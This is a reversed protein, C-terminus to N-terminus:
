VELRKFVVASAAVGAVAALAMCLFVAPMTEYSTSVLFLMIGLLYAPTAVITAWFATYGRRILLASLPGFALAGLASCVAVCLLALSGGVIQYEPRGTTVPDPGPRFFEAVLDPNAAWTRGYALAFLLTLGALCAATVGMREAWFRGRTVPEALARVATGHDFEAAFLAVGVAAFTVYVLLSTLPWWAFSSDKQPAVAIAALVVVAALVLQTRIMRLYCLIRTKM